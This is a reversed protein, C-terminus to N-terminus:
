PDINSVQLDLAWGRLAKDAGRTWFEFSLTQSVLFETDYIDDPSLKAFKKTFESMPIPYNTTKAALYVCTPRILTHTM